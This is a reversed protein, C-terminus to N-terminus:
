TAERQFEHKARILKEKLIMFDIEVQNENRRPVSLKMSFGECEYATSDM